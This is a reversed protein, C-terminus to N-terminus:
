HCNNWTIAGVFHNVSRTCDGGDAHTDNTNDGNTGNYSVHDVITHFKFASLDTDTRHAGRGGMVTSSEWDNSFITWNAVANWSMSGVLAGHASTGKRPIGAPSKKLGFYHHSESALMWTSDMDVSVESAGDREWALPSGNAIGTPSNIGDM